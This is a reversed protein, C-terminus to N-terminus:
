PWGTSRCAMVNAPGQDTNDARSAPHRLFFSPSVDLTTSLKSHLLAALTAPMHDQPHASCHHVSTTSPFPLTLLRHLTHFYATSRTHSRSTYRAAGCRRALALMLHSSWPTTVFSHHGAWVALGFYAFAAAAVAVVWALKPNHTDSISPMTCSAPRNIFNHYVISSSALLICIGGVTHCEACHFM